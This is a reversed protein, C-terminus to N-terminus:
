QTDDRKLIGSSVSKERGKHTWTVIVIVEKYKYVSAGWNQEIVRYSRTGNYPAKALRCLEESDDSITPLPKNHPEEPYPNPALASDTYPLVQLDEIIEMLFKNAEHYNQADVLYDKVVGFIGTGGVVLIAVIIGGVIVDIISM